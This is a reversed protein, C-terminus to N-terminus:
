IGMIFIVLLPLVLAFEVATAGRQDALWARRTDRRM